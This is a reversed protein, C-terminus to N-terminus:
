LNKPLLTELYLQTEVLSSHRTEKYIFRRTTGDKRITSLLPKPITVGLAKKNKQHLYYAQLLEDNNLQKVKESIIM